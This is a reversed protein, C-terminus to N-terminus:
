GTGAVRHCSLCGNAKILGTARAVEADSLLTAKAVTPAPSPMATPAGPGFHTALYATVSDLDPQTGQAGRSVMENVVGAWQSQTMRQSTAISVSHCNGCIRQFEAKGPGDPLSQAHGKTAFSLVMISGLNLICISRLTANM